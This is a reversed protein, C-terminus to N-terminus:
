DEGITAMAVISAAARMIQTVLNQPGSVRIEVAVGEAIPWIMCGGDPNAAKARAFRSGTGRRACLWDQYYKAATLQGDTFWVEGCQGRIPELCDVWERKRLKNLDRAVDREFWGQKESEVGLRRVIDAVTGPGECLADAVASMSETVEPLQM